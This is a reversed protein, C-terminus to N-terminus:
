EPEAQVDIGDAVYKVSVKRYVAKGDEEEPILNRNVHIVLQYHKRREGEELKIGCGIFPSEIFEAMHRNRVRRVVDFTPGIFVKKRESM